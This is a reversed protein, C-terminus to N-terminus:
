LRTSPYQSWEFISIFLYLVSGCPSAYPTILPNFPFRSPSTPSSLESMASSLGLLQAPFNSTSLLAPLVPIVPVDDVLTRLCFPVHHVVLLSPHCSSSRSQSLSCHHYHNLICPHQIRSGWRLWAISRPWYESPHFAASYWIYSAVVM